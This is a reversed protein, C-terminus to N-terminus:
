TISSKILYSSSKCRFLDFVPTYFKASASFGAQRLHEPDKEKLGLLLEKVRGNSGQYEREQNVARIIEEAENVLRAVVRRNEKFEQSTACSIAAAGTLILTARAKLNNFSM